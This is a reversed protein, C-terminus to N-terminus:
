QEPVHHPIQQILVSVLIRSIEHRIDPLSLKGRIRQKRRWRESSRLPCKRLRWPVVSTVDMFFIREGSDESDPKLLVENKKEKRKQDAIEDIVNDEM